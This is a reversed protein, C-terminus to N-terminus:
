ESELLSARASHKAPPLTHLADRAEARLPQVKYLEHLLARAAPLDVRSLAIAMQLLPDYAPRFDPSIALVSLLPEHVQALM